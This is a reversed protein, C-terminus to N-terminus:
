GPTSPQRRVAPSTLPTERTLGDNTTAGDVSSVYFVNGVTNIDSLIAEDTIFEPEVNYGDPINM